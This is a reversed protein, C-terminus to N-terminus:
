QKLKKIVGKSADVKVLDNDKFIKTAIETGVVCPIKLERSVIAAHCTLGGMDTVIAAAKKMAPLLNPNTAHSVLVDGEVVKYTDNIHDVIKVKGKIQGEFATTGKLEKVQAFKEEEYIEQFFKEAEQGTIFSEKGDVVRLISFKFRQNLEQADFKNEILALPLEEPLFYRVQDLSLNLRKAIEKYLPEVTFCAFFMADKRFGKLFILESVTNFLKKEKETLKLGQLLKKKQEVLDVQKHENEQLLKLEQEPNKMNKLLSIFYSKEWAPGEFNYAIWRFEQWHNTLCEDFAKDFESLNEEISKEDNKQFFDRLEKNQSYEQLIKQFSSQEENLATIKEPQSILLFAKSSKIDLGSEKIKKELLEKAYNTLLEDKVELLNGWQGNYHATYYAKYFWNFLEALQENTKQTLEEKSIQALEHSVKFCEVSTNYNLQSKEEFWEPQNILKKLLDQGARELSQNKLFLSIDQNQYAIATDVPLSFEELNLGHFRVWGLCVLPNVKRMREVFYWESM